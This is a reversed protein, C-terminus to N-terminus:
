LKNIEEVVEEYFQITAYATFFPKGELSTGFNNIILNVSYLCMDKSINRCDLHVENYESFFKYLNKAVERPTKNLHTEM